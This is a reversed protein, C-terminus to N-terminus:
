MWTELISPSDTESRPICFCGGEKAVYARAQALTSFAEGQPEPIEGWWLRVVYGDAFDRPHDYVTWMPPFIVRAEDLTM